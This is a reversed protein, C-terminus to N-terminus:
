SEIVRRDNERGIFVQSREEAFRRHNIIEEQQFSIHSIGEIEEGIIKQLVSYVKECFSSDDKDYEVYNEGLRNCLEQKLSILMTDESSLHDTDPPVDQRSFCVANNGSKGNRLVGLSVEQHVASATYPILDEGTFGATIAAEELATHLPSEVKEKWTAYDIYEDYRPQLVRIPPINNEDKRYWKDLLKRGAESIFKRIKLHDADPITYPLPRWGYRDGLLILLNPRKTVQQCREVEKLCIEMTRQDISAEESIGWRLDIAQFRFGNEECYAKLRPFVHKHIANRENTMDEFTSSIFLRIIRSPIPM